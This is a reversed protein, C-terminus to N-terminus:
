VENPSSQDMQFQFRFSNVLDLADAAVPHDNAATALPAELVVLNHVMVNRNLMAVAANLVAQQERLTNEPNSNGLVTVLLRSVSQHETSIRNRSTVPESVVSKFGAKETIINDVAADDITVWTLEQLVLERHETFVAAILPLLTEPSPGASAKLAQAKFLAQSLVIGDPSQDLVAQQANEIELTLAAKTQVFDSQRKLMDLHNSVSYVVSCAALASVAALQMRSRRDDIFKRHKTLVLSVYRNSDHRRLVRHQLVHQAILFVAGHQMAMEDLKQSEGVVFPMAEDCYVLEDVWELASAGALQQDSLGVLCVRVASDILETTRLHSLTEELGGIISFNETHELTRIFLAHGSICFIHKCYGLMNCLVLYPKDNNAFLNAVTEASTAVSCFTVASKEVYALWSRCLESLCLKQVLLADLGTSKTPTRIIADPFRDILTQRLAKRHSLQHIVTGEPQLAYADCEAHESDIVLHVFQKNSELWECPQYVGQGVQLCETHVNVCTGGDFRLWVGLKGNIYLVTKV